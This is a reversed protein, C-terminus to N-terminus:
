NKGGSYIPDMELISKFSHFQHKLNSYLEKSKLLDGQKCSEELKSSLKQLKLAGLNGSSGKLTHAERSALVLKEENLYEDICHILEPADQLFRHILETALVQDNMIRNLFGQKDFLPDSTNSSNAHFMINTPYPKGPLWKTLILMLDDPNFPKPLYDNMGVRFCRRKYSEEAHATLAIVPIDHQLVGSSPNRIERTAQFGDMVPMQCDMLVLDYSDKSLKDLADKGNNSLTASFGLKNLCILAVKQNIMNDEVILIRYKHNRNESLTYHTIIGGSHHKSGHHELSSVMNLCDSLQQKKVPKTLYAHFGTKQIRNVDGRSGMSTLMILKTSRHDQNQRIKRGLAEGGGDEPFQKDLIIIHYPDKDSLAQDLIELTEKGTLASSFRCGLQQLYMELVSRSTKQHDILLIRKDSVTKLTDPLEQKIDSQKEMTVTFSFVSGDLKSSEVKLSGNMLETLQKSITLGLGTGGYTRTTSTDEQVFSEFIHDMDKQKIGIGTDTVQFLLTAQTDTENKCTVEVIVEGHTTFKIANDVLNILVQRLRGPDGKLQLPVNERILCAYELSKQHAKVAMLDGLEELTVRLNFTIEELDIKGAEIKSYDLIDNILSLLSYCSSQIIQTYEQQERNLDTDSLLSMMGMVGNMPTRIEHSMNALFDSKAQNALDAHHALDNAKRIANELKKNTKELDKRATMLESIDVFVEILLEEDDLQLELISKIIPIENGNRDLISKESSDNPLGLDIVPCMCDKRACIIDHCKTGVLEAEDERGMIRLAAQNASKIVKDRSLTIIGFPLSALMLKTSNLTVQLQNKSLELSRQFKDRKRITNAMNSLAIIVIILFLLSLGFLLQTSTWFRQQLKEKRLTVDYYIELAGLTLKNETIPVYVEVVDASILENELSRANKQIIKTLVSDQRIMNHFYDTTNVIGIEGPETSFLTHGNRRLVKLKYLNFDHAVSTMNQITESSIKPSKLQTILDPILHRALLIAEEEANETVDRIFSPYIVYLVLTFQMSIIILTILIINRLFLIKIFTMNKGWQFLPFSEM